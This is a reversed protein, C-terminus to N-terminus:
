KVIYFQIYQNDNFFVLYHGYGFDFKWFKKCWMECYVLNYPSAMYPVNAEEIEHICTM